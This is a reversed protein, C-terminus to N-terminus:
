RGGSPAPTSSIWGKRTWGRPSSRAAGRDYRRQGVPGLLADLLTAQGGLGASQAIPVPSLMHAAQYQEWVLKDRLGGLVRERHLRLDLGEEAAFGIERAIILPAADVLPVFGLDLAALSM